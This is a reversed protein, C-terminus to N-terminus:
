KDQRSSIRYPLRRGEVEENDYLKAVPLKHTQWIYAIIEVWANSYKIITNETQQANFLKENTLNSFERQNIYIIAPM